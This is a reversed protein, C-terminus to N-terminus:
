KSKPREGIKEVLDALMLLKRDPMRARALHASRIM